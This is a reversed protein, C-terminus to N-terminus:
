AVALSMQAVKAGSRLVLNAMEGTTSIGNLDPSDFILKQPSVGPTTGLDISRITALEDCFTLTMGEGSGGTLPTKANITAATAGTGPLTSSIYGLCTAANGNIATNIQAYTSAAGGVDITIETRGTAPVPVVAITLGGGGSDEIVIDILNGALGATAAAILIQKNVDTPDTSDAFLYSAIGQYAVLNMGQLELAQEGDHDISDQSLRSITPLGSLDADQARTDTDPISTVVYTLAGLTELAVLQEALRNFQGNTMVQSKTTSADVTISMAGEAPMPDQVVVNMAATITIQVM